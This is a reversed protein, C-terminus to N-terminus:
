QHLAADGSRISDLLARAPYFIDPDGASIDIAHQLDADAAAFNRTAFYARGRDLYTASRAPDLELAKNYDALASAYDQKGAYAEGRGHYLLAVTPDLAIAHTYHVIAEDIHGAVALAHAENQVSLAETRADPPASCAIGTALIGAALTLLLRPAM